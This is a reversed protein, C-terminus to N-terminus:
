DRTGPRVLTGLRLVLITRRLVAKMPDAKILEPLLSPPIHHPPDIGSFLALAPTFLSLQGLSLSGPARCSPLVLVSLVLDGPFM